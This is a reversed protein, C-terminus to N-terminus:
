EQPPEEKKKRRGLKLKPVRPGKKRVVRTLVIVVVIILLWWMWSYAFDVALDELTELFDSIGREFSKLMRQGFSDPVEEVNSLKYVEQLTVHVTAYDVKSDYRRLTGSLNEINWETESIASEITIIDEMLEAESLLKQLRELKIKQTKLRGETDYYAESVDEQTLQQWTVHCLEGASALFADLNEAPIRIMSEAWRAGNNRNAMSSNEYYGGMRETMEALAAAAEDFATTEMELYATRILKQEPEAAEVAGSASDATTYTYDVYGMEEAKAETTAMMAPAEAKSAAPASEKMAGGASAGCATLSLAMLMALVTALVRRKMNRDEKTENGREERRPSKDKYVSCEQFLNGRKTM